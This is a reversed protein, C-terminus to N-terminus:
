KEIKERIGEIYYLRGYKASDLLSVYFFEHLLRNNITDTIFVKRNLMNEGIHTTIQVSTSDEYFYKKTYFKLQRKNHNTLAILDKYEPHVTKIHKLYHGMREPEYIYGGPIIYNYKFMQIYMKIGMFAPFFFVLISLAVRFVPKKMWVMMIQFIEYFTLALMLWFFPFVPAIYWHNKMLALSQGLLFFVAGSFSYLILRKNIKNKSFILPIIIAPMFFIWPRLGTEWLWVLYYEFEPHKPKGPYESVVNLEWQFVAKLYGPDASARGLYYVLIITIVSFVTLYFSSSAMLRRGNKLFLTYIAIGALPALGAISKTFVAGAVSIGTLILYKTHNGPYKELVIFFSLVYGTVFMTLLTDPDGHRAM